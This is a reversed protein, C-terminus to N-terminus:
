QIIGKIKRLNICFSCKIKLSPPKKGRGIKIPTSYFEEVVDLPFKKSFWDTSNNQIQLVNHDDINTIFEYFKWHETDFDLELNCRLDSRVIGKNSLLRPTQIYIPENKYEAISMFSGGKIKEPKKFKIKHIDITNYDIININSM